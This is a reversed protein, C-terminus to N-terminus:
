ALGEGARWSRATRPPRRSHGARPSWAFRARHAVALQPVEERAGPAVGGDDGHLATLRIQELQDVRPEGVVDDVHEESDSVGRSPPPWLRVSCSATRRRGRSPPAPASLPRAVARRRGRRHLGIGTTCPLTSVVTAKLLPVAVATRSYVARRRRHHPVGLCYRGDM